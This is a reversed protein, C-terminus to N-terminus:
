TTSAGDIRQEPRQKRLTSPILKVGSAGGSINSVAQLESGSVTQARIALPTMAVGMIMALAQAKGSVVGAKQM